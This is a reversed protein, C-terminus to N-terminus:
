AAGNDDKRGMAQEIQTYIDVVWTTRHPQLEMFAERTQVRCLRESKDHKAAATQNSCGDSAWFPLKFNVKAFPTICLEELRKSGVKIGPYQQKIKLTL